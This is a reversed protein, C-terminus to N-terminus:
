LLPPDKVWHTLGPILGAEEHVSAPNKIQQVVVPVGHVRGVETNQGVSRIM